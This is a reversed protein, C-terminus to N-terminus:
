FWFPAGSESILAHRVASGFFPANVCGLNEVVVLVALDSLFPFGLESTSALLPTKPQLFPEFFTKFLSSTKESSVLELLDAFVWM